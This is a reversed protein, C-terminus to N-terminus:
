LVHSSVKRVVVYSPFELDANTHQKPKYDEANTWEASFLDMETLEIQMVDLLCKYAPSESSGSDQSLLASQWATSPVSPLTQPRPPGDKPGEDSLQESSSTHVPASALSSNLPPSSGMASYFSGLSSSSTPGAYLGSASGVLTSDSRMSMDSRLSIDSHAPSPLDSGPMDLSGFSHMSELEGSRWDSDFSGYVSSTMSMNELLIEPSEVATKYSGSTTGKESPSFSVFTSADSISMDDATGQPATLTIDSAMSDSRPILAARQAARRASLTGLAEDQCFTNIVTLKGLDMVLIDKSRSSHPFLLIPAGAEIDM